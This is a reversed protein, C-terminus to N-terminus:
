LSKVGLVEAIRGLGLVVEEESTLSFNFRIEGTVNDNDYFEVAPVFVVGNKMAKKILKSSDVEPLEGYIFMGGKPRTYRFTPLIKELSQAFFEMKKHYSKRLLNLHRHYEKKDNLYDNLIAQSLGNSHLDMAEKYAILPEILEKSARIWGIRLAPALTKSFTGLHYSKNPILSSISQHENEFYLKAYPADEILIGEENKVIKAIEERRKQSYCRGTPNQFDPILYTLRSKQFSKRFGELKIGNQEVGIAEQELKNLKFINMAGLYSPSETTIKHHAYYRCIIDLAQQSGSTILINEASTEFDEQNYFDAIKEKLPEYGSSRGYQLINADQLVRNASALLAEHPFLSTMPLGGAFSITESNTHELIERIFSRKMTVGTFYLDM